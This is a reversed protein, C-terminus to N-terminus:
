ILKNQNTKTYYLCLAKNKDIHFQNVNGKSVM